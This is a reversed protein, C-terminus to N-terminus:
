PLPTSESAAASLECVVAIGSPHTALVIQRPGARIVHLTHQATLALRGQSELLRSPATSGRLRIRGQKRLLWLLGFLLALVFAIALSQRVIDM